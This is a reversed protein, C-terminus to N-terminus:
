DDLSLSQTKVIKVLLKGPTEYCPQTELAGPQARLPTQVLFRGIRIRFGLGCPWDRLLLLNGFQLLNLFEMLVSSLLLENTFSSTFDTVTERLKSRIEKPVNRMLDILTQPKSFKEVEKTKSSFYVKKGIKQDKLGPVKQSLTNYTFFITHEVVKYISYIKDLPQQRWYFARSLLEDYHIDGKMRLVGSSYNRM